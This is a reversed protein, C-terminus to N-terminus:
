WILKWASFLMDRGIKSISLTGKDGSWKGVMDIEVRQMVHGKRDQVIGWAKIPGSFYESLSAVPQTGQYNTVKDSCGTLGMIVGIVGLMALISKGM